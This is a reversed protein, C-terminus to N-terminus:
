AVAFAFSSSRSAEVAYIFIRIKRIKWIQFHGFPWLDTESIQRGKDAGSEATREAGSEAVQLIVHSNLVSTFPLQLRSFKMM